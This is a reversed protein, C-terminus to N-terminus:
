ATPRCGGRRNPAVSGVNHAGALLRPRRGSGQPLAKARKPDYAPPSKTAKCGTHWEHCMSIQLPDSAVPEPVLAKALGRRDIAHMLAERVRKDKFIGIKSRDAADVMFYIFQVTRGVTVQLNPMKALNVAQDKTIQYVM